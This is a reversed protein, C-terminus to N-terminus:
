LNHISCRYETGERPNHSWGLKPGLFVARSTTDAIIQPSPCPVKSSRGPQEIAASALGSKFFIGVLLSIDIILRM